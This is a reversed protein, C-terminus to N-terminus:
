MKFYLRMWFFFTVFDQFGMLVGLICLGNIVLTCGKFIEISSLDM